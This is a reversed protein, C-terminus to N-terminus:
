HLAPHVRSRLRLSIAGTTVLVLALVAALAITAIEWGATSGAAAVPNAESVGPPAVTAAYVAPVALLLALGSLALGALFAITRRIHSM